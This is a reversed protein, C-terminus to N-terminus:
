LFGDKWVKTWNVNVGLATIVVLGGVAIVDCQYGNANHTFYYICKLSVQFRAILQTLLARVNLYREVVM